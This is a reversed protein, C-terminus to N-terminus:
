QAIYFGGSPLERFGIWRDAMPTGDATHLYYMIMSTDFISITEGQSNQVDLDPWRISLQKGWYSLCMNNDTFTAQSSSAIMRPDRERLDERLHDLRNLMSEEWTRSDKRQSDPKSRDNGGSQDLLGPM